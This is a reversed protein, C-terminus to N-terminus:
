HADKMNQMVFEFTRTLNFLRLTTNDSQDM